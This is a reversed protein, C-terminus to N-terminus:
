LIVQLASYFSLDVLFIVGIFFDVCYAVGAPVEVPPPLM